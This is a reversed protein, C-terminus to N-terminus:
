GFYERYTRESVCCGALTCYEMRLTDCYSTKAASTIVVCSSCTLAVQSSLCGLFKNAYRYPNPYREWFVEAVQDWCYKILAASNYREVDPM